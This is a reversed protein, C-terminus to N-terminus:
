TASLRERRAAKAGLWYFYDLAIDYCADLRTSRRQELRRIAVVIWDPLRPV